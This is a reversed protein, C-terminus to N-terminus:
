VSDDNEGTFVTESTAGDVDWRSVYFEADANMKMVEDIFDMAKEITSFVAVLHLDFASDGCNNDMVCFVEDM